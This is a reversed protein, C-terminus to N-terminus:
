PALVGRRSAAGRRTVETTMARLLAALEDATIAPGRQAVPAALGFVGHVLTRAEGDSMQTHIERIVHVWEDVHRRHARDIARREDKPLHHRERAMVAFAAPHEVTFTVFNDILLDLAEVPPLGQGSIRVVGDMLPQMWGEIVEILIDVKSGFHRYIAPGTVEVAQGIDDIGTAHYGHAAFLEAAAAVIARRKTGVPARGAGQLRATM